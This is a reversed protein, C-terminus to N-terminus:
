GDPTFELGFPAIELFPCEPDIPLPCADHFYLFPRLESTDPAAEWLFNNQDSVFLHGHFAGFGDPAILPTTFNAAATVPLGTDPDLFTFSEKFGTSDYVNVNNGATL